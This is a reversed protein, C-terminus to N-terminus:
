QVAGQEYTSGDRFISGEAVDISADLNSLFGGMSKHEVDVNASSWHEDLVNKQHKQCIRKMGMLEAMKQLDDSAQEKTMNSNNEELCTASNFSSM